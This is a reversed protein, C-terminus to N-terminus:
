VVKDIVAQITQNYASKLITGEGQIDPEAASLIFWWQLDTLSSSEKAFNEKTLYKVM